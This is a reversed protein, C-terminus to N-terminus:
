FDNKTVCWEADPYTELIKIYKTAKKDGCYAEVKHEGITVKYEESYNPWIDGQNYDDLVIYITKNTENKITITGKKEEASLQLSLSLFVLFAIFIFSKGRGWFAMM